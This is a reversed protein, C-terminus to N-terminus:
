RSARPQSPAQQGTNPEAIMTGVGEDTFVELLLARPLRGDVIHVSGVGHTVAHVAATVKPVMGGRVAGNAVMAEAQAPSCRQMVSAPDSPDARIGEVDTLFVLKDAALSTAIAGAVLDANINYAQGSDDSGITAVVPILGQAILRQLIAPDVAEVQGVFGLDAPHASARILGADEGSLGVALSGLTNIAGVLDRNVKGVLVMRAIDLTDSDTVRMGDVFVAEKGLRHMWDGIQPGGGHVVVPRLGVSALLVVDEAFDSLAAGGAVSAGGQKVVVVAGQFRRMWPLAEVLVAARQSAQAVDTRRSVSEVWHM